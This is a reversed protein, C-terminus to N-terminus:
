RHAYGTGGSVSVSSVSWRPIGCADNSSTLSPTLTAGSGSGGSATVTPLVRGLKAYGSGGSTLTVASIPGKDTDPDGGPATVQASAGGGFCASFGVSILDPGPTKDTLGDFTVTVTDPLEGETCLTCPPPPACCPSCSSGLMIGIPYMGVAFLWVLGVAFSPPDVSAIASVLEFM